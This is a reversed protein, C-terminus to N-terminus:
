MNEQKITSKRTNPDRLKGANRQNLHEFGLRRQKGVAQISITMRCNHESAAYHRKTEVISLLCLM